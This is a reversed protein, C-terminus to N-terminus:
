PIFRKVYYNKKVGNYYVLSYVKKENFKEILFAEENFHTALDYGHFHIEGKKTFAIIKENGKFSGLRKGHEDTNLRMISEDLYIEQGGLTSIGEEKKKIKRIAYRSLVNGKAGRGKIAIDSFNFDFSLKKLRPRPHLYYTIIEAEGNPNATFYLVKSKENGATLVYEKDRTIGKVAFRKVYNRGAIGDRYIMNYITREDNKNFINIHIINKGVYVKDDVKKVMMTGDNHFIIIDDIDSCDCIYKAKKLGTGAFGNEADFYLKQNNVAVLAAQINEFDRIETKRERGKGYKRKINKYYNITFEIINDLHKQVEELEDMFGKMLEDAKFSDYKSIRKIQIQTLKVIDDKTIKRYFDKKYPELGKDISKIVANWTTCEEIDRYIRNEIFIKELSSFLIKEQLEGKRIELEKTLLVQTKTVSKSLIDSVSVFMPKDGDIICANPSISIECNTFAYLADITQDPSVNNALYIVIEVHEATNDEIKKIKIKGKDNALLISEILSNTTQPFV